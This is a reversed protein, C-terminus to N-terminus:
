RCDFLMYNSFAILLFHSRLCVSSKVVAPLQKTDGVLVLSRVGFELPVCTNPETCQTAEDIICIPISDKAIFRYLFSKTFNLQNKM